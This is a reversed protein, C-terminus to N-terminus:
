MGILQELRDRLRTWRERLGDRKDRERQVVDEPAKTIFSTNRLRIEVQAIEQTLDEMEIAIREREADLDIVEGLLLYIELGAEVLTLAQAPREDVSEAIVLAEEDLHALNCLEQRHEEFLETREGAVLVVPIRKGAPVNMETRLNRIARVVGMFAGVFAEADEDVWGEQPWPAAILAPGEHPLAQWLTETVFPMYPHLLRLSRELIYVLVQRATNQQRIDTGYLRVKSM